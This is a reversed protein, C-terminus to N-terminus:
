VFSKQNEEVYSCYCNVYLNNRIPKSDTAETACNTETVRGPLFTPSAQSRSSPNSERGFSLKTDPKASHLTGLYSALNKALNQLM